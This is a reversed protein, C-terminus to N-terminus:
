ELLTRRPEM